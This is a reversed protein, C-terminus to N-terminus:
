VVVHEEDHGLRIPTKPTDSSTKLNLRDAEHHICYKLGVRYCIDANDKEGMSELLQALEFYAESDPLQNLRTEYFTKAKGWLKKQKNLRAMTLLLAPNGGKVALWRKGVEGAQIPDHHELQGYMEVLKDDWKLDISTTLTKACLETEGMKKLAKAFIAVAEPNERISQPLKRWSKQLQDLRGQESYEDFLGTLTAAKYNLIDKESIIKHKVLNPLLDFLASWNKQRYHVKALLKSVYPHNPSLDQLRQLTAQAQAIQGADLQMEAQAVSVAIDAHKDHEVAKKLLEDRQEYHQQMHAARAAAVYNVIPTDCYSLHKLLHREAKVWHGETLLVLGQILEKGAKNNLRKKRYYSIRHHLTLLYRLGNLIIYSFLFLVLLVLLFSATKMEVSWQNLSIQTDGTSGLILQILTFFAAIIILLFLISRFM